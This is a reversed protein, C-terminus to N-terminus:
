QEPIKVYVDDGKLQIIMKLENGNSLTAMGRYYNDAFQDDITVKVCEIEIDRGLQKRILQNVAGVAKEELIIMETGTSVMLGFMPLLLLVILVFITIYRRRNSVEYPHQKAKDILKSRNLLYLPFAVIWLGFTALAWLGPSLNLFGKQGPIKGIRHKTTDYYVFLISCSVLVYGITEM